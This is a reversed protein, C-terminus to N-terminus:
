GDDLMYMTTVRSFVLDIPVVAPGKPLIIEKTESRLPGRLIQLAFPHDFARSEAELRIANVRIM